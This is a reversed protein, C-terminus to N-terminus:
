AEVVGGQMSWSARRWSGVQGNGTQVAAGRGGGGWELKGLVM